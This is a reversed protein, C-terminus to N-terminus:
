QDYQRLFSMIAPDESSFFDTAEGTYHVYGAGLMIVYDAIARISSLEHTVVIITLDYTRKLELLLQDLDHASVPDLGASPEDCFLVEPEHILARALAARKRMGGSLESPFHHIAHMLKFRVLQSRVLVDVLEEPMSYHERLPFATNAYLDMSNYLAGNQFLMGIRQLVAM